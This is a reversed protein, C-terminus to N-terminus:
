AKKCLAIGWDNRLLESQCKQQTGPIFWHNFIQKWALIMAYISLPVTLGFVTTTRNNNKNKVIIVITNASM